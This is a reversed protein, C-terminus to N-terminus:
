TLKKYIELTQRATKDWTFSNSIAYGKNIFYEKDFNENLITSIAEFISEKNQPEFYIGADGAVEPFSSSNSLIVPCGCSFAELVPIGFGEYLSPFVFATAKQYCYKLEGSNVERQFVYDQIGLDSIIKREDVSFNGGGACLISIKKEKLLPSISQIFFTFNKYGKRQGVFLLYRNPVTIKKSFIESLSGALYIVSIKEPRINTLRCLDKKTSESIAIIKDARRLVKNKYAVTKDFSSFYAPFLEHIMDFVTIVIPKRINKSLFYPSYYTPHFIDYGGKRLIGKSFQNNVFNLLSRKGKFKINSFFGVSTKFKDPLYANESLTKSFVIEVDFRGIAKILEAFYKSVGGYKQSFVQNDYFIKM